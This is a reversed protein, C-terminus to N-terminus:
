PSGAAATAQEVLARLRSESDLLFNARVVVAEGAAVGSLVEVRGEGRLGLRVLRPEFRGQGLGVFVVQRTGSDIVASEPISVGEATELTFIVDGFMGPKLATGPNPFELRVKITRSEPDLFPLVYTIKGSLKREPDYPLILTAEQGVIATRAEFEYLDAEVWVRALDTITYLEMGPEVQQGEVIGKSTVFGSAPAALTVTRRPQGDREIAAIVSEPVDFLSLRRRAAAVIGSATERLAQDDSGALREASRIAGLLEEQTALIDPAYLDLLPSGKAVYQGSFNVHLKEVYGGVKTHAHRVATEDPVVRGVTRVTRRVSGRTATTTQVGALAIGRGELTVAALGEPKPSAAEDAFFDKTEEAISKPKEPAGGADTYVPLYDMGMEDKAPVPSTIAPNMPNRYFLLKREGKGASGAVPGGGGPRSLWGLKWAAGGAIALTLLATAAITILRSAGRQRMRM